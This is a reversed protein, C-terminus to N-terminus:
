HTRFVQASNSGRGEVLEGRQDRRKRRRQRCAEVRYPRTRPRRPYFECDIEVPDGSLDVGGARANHEIKVGRLELTGDRQRRLRRDGRDRPMSM